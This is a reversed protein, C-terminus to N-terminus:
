KSSCKKGQSINPLHVAFYDKTARYQMFVMFQADNGLHTFSIRSKAQYCCYNTASYQCLVRPHGTNNSLPIMALKNTVADNHMIKGIKVAAPKALSEGATYPANTRGLLLFAARV